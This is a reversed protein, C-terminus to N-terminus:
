ASSCPSTPAHRVRSVSRSRSRLPRKSYPEPCRSFIREESPDPNYHGPGDDSLRGWGGREYACRSKQRPKPEGLVLRNGFYSMHALVRTALGSIRKLGPLSKSLWLPMFRVVPRRVREQLCRLSKVWRALAAQPTDQAVLPLGLALLGPCTDSV